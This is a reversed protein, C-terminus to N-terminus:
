FHFKGQPAFGKPEPLPLKKLEALEGRRIYTDFIGERKKGQLYKGVKRELWGSACVGVFKPFKSGKALPLSCSFSERYNGEMDKQPHLEHKYKWWVSIRLEEHGINSWMVVSPEGAITTHVHGGDDHNSTSPGELEILGRELLDNTGLVLLKRLEDM